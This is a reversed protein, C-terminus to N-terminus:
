CKKKLTKRIWILYKRMQWRYKRREFVFQYHNGDQPFLQRKNLIPDMARIGIFSLVTVLIGGVAGCLEADLSLQNAIAYGGAVGLILGILPILYVIALAKLVSM